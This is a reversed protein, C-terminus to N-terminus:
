VRSLAAIIKNVGEKVYATPSAINLRMFGRGEEGFTLGNNLGVKAEEAMFKVLDGQSLNMKRCDLWILYTGEPQIVDIKDCDAFAHKVVQYNNQLLQILHTLWEDGDQYAAELATIGLTNLSNLGYKAFSALIKTRVKKEPIM